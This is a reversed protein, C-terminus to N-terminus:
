AVPSHAVVHIIPLGFKREAQHVLDLRLWRSVGPPLTCIVLTDYAPQASLEDAIRKANYVDRLATILAQSHVAM